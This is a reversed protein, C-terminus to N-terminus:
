DMLVHLLPIAAIVAGILAAIFVHRWSEFNISKGLDTQPATVHLMQGALIVWLLFGTLASDSPADNYAAHYFLSWGSLGGVAAWTFFIGLILQQTGTMGRTQIARWAPPGFSTCIAMSLSFRFGLLILNLVAPPIFFFGLWYLQFGAAISWFIPSRLALRM